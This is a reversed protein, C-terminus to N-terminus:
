RGRKREIRFTLSRERAKLMEFHRNLQQVQFYLSGYEETHILTEFVKPNLKNSLVDNMKSIKLIIDQLVNQQAEKVVNLEELIDENAIVSNGTTFVLLIFIIVSFTTQKNM